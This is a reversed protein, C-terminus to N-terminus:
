ETVCRVDAPRDLELVLTGTALDFRHPAQIEVSRSGIWVKPRHTLGHVLVRWPTTPWGEARFRVGHKEVVVQRIPGPAHILLGHERVCAWDYLPDLGYAPAAAPLLTAPNIPVPNRTQERLSFNDPLLGGLGVDTAPHVQQVGCRAIGDSLRIWPGEPDQRALRRIADAYVLGCWQVPLGIWNPAIWQTAGLVPTTAYPGIASAHLGAPQLYVFPVGTWAWYRAQDLFEGRGTWEFGLTYAKVLHASALIDPAHLPIEWSQAGRPVTNRYRTMADLLRIGEAILSRDGSFFGSELIRGVAQATMGNADRSDHTSAYDIGGTPPHYNLVGNSDFRRVWSWGEDRVSRLEPETEGLVLAPLPQRIHGIQHSVLSGNPVLAAAKESVDKARTRLTPDSLRPGLWGLHVAADSAPQLGFSPGVAHRFRDGERIGSDLWGLALSRWLSAAEEVPARLKPFGIRSVAEKVVPVLTDGSGGMLTVHWRHRKKPELPQGAYPLVNGDARISPDSGPFALAMLSGGSRFLRDPSDFLASLDPSPRWLMGLWHGEATLAMLPMTLKLSDPVVRRAQAGRLTRESSSDEDELYEVGAFLAQSKHGGFSGVGPHVGFVPLFAVSRPESVVVESEIEIAGKSGDPRLRQSFEWRAGDPDMSQLVWRLALGDRRVSVRGEPIWWRLRDGSLYGIGSRNHGIAFPRGAVRVDFEGWANGLVVELDGSRVRPSATTTPAVRPSEWAPPQLMPRPLFRLRRIECRGSSGPPDFRMHSTPGLSPIPVKLTTWTDKPISFRISHDESFGSGPPNFFLQALGGTESRIEIEMWLAGVEAFAVPGTGCYPDDGTLSLVLGREPDQQIQVAHLPTWVTATDARRFDWAPLTETRVPLILGLVGLFVLSCRRM